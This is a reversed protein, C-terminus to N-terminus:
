LRRTRGRAPQQLEAWASGLPSRTMVPMLGSLKPVTDTPLENVCFTVSTFEPMSDAIVTRKSGVLAPV